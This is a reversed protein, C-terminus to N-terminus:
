IVDETVVDAQGIVEEEYAANEEQAITTQEASNERTLIMDSMYVQEAMGNDLVDETVATSEAPWIRNGQEDLIVVSVKSGAEFLEIAYSAENITEYSHITEIMEQSVSDIDKQLQKSYYTPLFGVIVAYTIGSSAALLVAILICIKITLGNKIRKIM